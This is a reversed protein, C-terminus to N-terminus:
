NLSINEFFSIQPNDNNNLIIGIADIQIKKYHKNTKLLYANAATYISSLKTKTIAEVPAGLKNSTRTKVEIFHLTNNKLAIIDIEAIKSYRYNTEIIKYGKNTLYEQAINEGIKGKIKNNM